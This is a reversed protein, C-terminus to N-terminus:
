DERRRREVLRERVREVGGRSERKGIEGGGRSEARIREHSALITHHTKYGEGGM